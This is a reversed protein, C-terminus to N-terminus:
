LFVFFIPPHGIFLVCARERNERNMKECLKKKNKDDDWSRCAL